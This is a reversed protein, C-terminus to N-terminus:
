LIVQHESATWRSVSHRASTVCNWETALWPLDVHGLRNWSVGCVAHLRIMHVGRKCPTHSDSRLQIRSVRQDEWM